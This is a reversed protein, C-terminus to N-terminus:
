QRRPQRKRENSSPCSAGNVHKRMSFFMSIAPIRHFLTSCDFVNSGSYLMNTCLFCLYAIQYRSFVFHSTRRHWLIFLFFPWLLVHLCESVREYLRISQCVFVARISFLFSMLYVFNKNALSFYLSLFFLSSPFDFIWVYQIQKIQCCFGNM